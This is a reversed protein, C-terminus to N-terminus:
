SDCSSAGCAGTGCPPAASDTKAPSGSSGSKKYDTSYWGSGKLAFSSMSMLKQVSGQCDPCQALPLDSFKQIIEIVKNCNSCQYEYLPM